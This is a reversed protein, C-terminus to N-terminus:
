YKRITLLQKRLINKILYTPKSFFGNVIMRYLRVNFINKPYLRILKSMCRFAEIYRSAKLHLQMSFAYANSMTQAKHKELEIPLDKNIFFKKIMIIPEQACEISPKSFTLSTEHVRFNALINPIRRFEGVLGLRLWFDLDPMQKYRADWPGSQQYASRRFFVGPGPICDLQILMKNFDYNSRRSVNIIQSYQNILNFDCYTMVISKNKELVDISKSVANKELVDDASLYSLIDGQAINWGKTLTDAQGINEQTEWYFQNNYKKIVERTEDTSGDDLVILEVNPYDQQLVSNIAESLYKGHNYAPIVVSVCLM